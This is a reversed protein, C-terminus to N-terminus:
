RGEALFYKGRDKIFAVTASDPPLLTVLTLLRRFSISGLEKVLDVGYYRQFDAEVSKWAWILLRPDGGGGGIKGPRGRSHVALGM